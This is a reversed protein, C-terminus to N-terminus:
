WGMAELIETAGVGTRLVSEINSLFDPGSIADCFRWSFEEAPVGLRACLAAVRDATARQARVEAARSAAAARLAAADAAAAEILADAAAAAAAAGGHPPPPPPPASSSGASGGRGGSKIGGRRKRPRRPVVARGAPERLGAGTGTAGGDSNSDSGGGGGGDGVDMTAATTAAAAVAAAAAAVANEDAAATTVTEAANAAAAAAAAAPTTAAVEATVGRGGGGGGAGEEIARAGEEEVVGTVLAEYAARVAAYTPRGTSLPIVRLRPDGRAIGGAGEIVGRSRASVSTWLIDCGDLHCRWADLTARAERELEAENARRLSAGASRCKGGGSNDRASQSGGQKRRTTYRCIVKHVTATGRAFVAAAFRGGRYMIVGWTRAGRAVAAAVEPTLALEADRSASLHAPLARRWVRLRLLASAGGAGSCLLLVRPARPPLAGGGGGGGGGDGSSANGGEESSAEDSGSDSGGQEDEEEEATPASAAAAPAAEPLPAGGALARRANALHWEGRRHERFAAVDEFTAGGCARCLFVPARSAPAAVATVTAPAEATEDGDDAYACRAARLAGVLDYLPVTRM